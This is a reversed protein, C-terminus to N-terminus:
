IVQLAFILRILPMKIPVKIGDRKRKLARQNDAMQKNIAIGDFDFVFAPVEDDATGVFERAAFTVGAAAVKAVAGGM